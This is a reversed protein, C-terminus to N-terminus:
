ILYAGGVESGVQLLDVTSQREQPLTRRMRRQYEAGQPDAVM